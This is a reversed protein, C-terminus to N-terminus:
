KSICCIYWGALFLGVVVAILKVIKKLPYELLMGGSFGGGIASVPAFLKTNL